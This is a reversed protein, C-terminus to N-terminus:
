QPGGTLGLGEQGPQVVHHLGHAARLMQVPEVRDVAGREARLHHDVAEGAVRAGAGDAHAVEGVLLHLQVDEARDGVEHVVQSQGAAPQGVAVPVDDGRHDPGHRGAPVFRIVADPLFAVHGAV